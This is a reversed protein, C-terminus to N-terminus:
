PGRSPAPPPARPGGRRGAHGPPPGRNHARFPAGPPRPPARHAGGGTRAVRALAGDHWLSVCQGRIETFAVRRPGLWGPGEPFQLGTALVTRQVVSHAEYAGPVDDVEQCWQAQPASGAPMLGNAVREIAAPRSIRPSPR